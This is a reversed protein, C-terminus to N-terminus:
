LWHLLRGERASPEQQWSLYPLKASTCSCSRVTTRDWETRPSCTGLCRNSVIVPQAASIEFSRSIDYTWSYDGGARSRCIMTMM